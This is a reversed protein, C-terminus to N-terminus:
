LGSKVLYQFSEIARQLARTSHLFHRPPADNAMLRGAQAEGQRNMARIDELFQQMLDITGLIAQLRQQPDIVSKPSNKTSQEMSRHPLPRGFAKEHNLLFDALLVADQGIPSPPPDLLDVFRAGFGKRVDQKLDEPLYWREQVIPKLSELFRIGNRLSEPSAGFWNDMLPPKDTKQSSENNEPAFLATNIRHMDVRAALECQWACYLVEKFKIEQLATDPQLQARLSRELTALQEEFEPRIVLDSAYYSHKLANHRINNKGRDTKPGTSLKSNKRNAQIKRESAMETEERELIEQVGAVVYM